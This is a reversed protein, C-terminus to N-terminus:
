DAMPNATGKSEGQKATDGQRFGPKAAARKRPSVLANANRMKTSGATSISGKFLKKRTGQKKVMEKGDKGKEEEKADNTDEKQIQPRADKIMLENELEEDTLENLIDDGDMDIGNELPSAKIAEMDMLAEEGDEDRHETSQNALQFDQEVAYGEAMVKDDDVQTELLALQFEASLLDESQEQLPRIEGEEVADGLVEM